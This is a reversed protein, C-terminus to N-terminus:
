FKKGLNFQLYLSAFLSLDLQEHMIEIKNLPYYDVMVGLEGGSIGTKLASFNFDLGTKLFVGLELGSEGLGKFWSSRSYITGAYHIDPDYREPTHVFTGNQPKDIELYVPKVLGFSPGIRWKYQIEIGNERSSKFLRLNGGYTPRFAMLSNVKGYYYGKTGSTGVLKFEKQNRINTLVFGYTNKYKFTKQKGYDFVLGWGSTNLNVGIIFDRTLVKDIVGSEIEQSISDFSVLMM